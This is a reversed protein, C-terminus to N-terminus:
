VEIIKEDEISITVEHYDSMKNSSGSTRKLMLIVKKNEKQQKAIYKYVDKFSGMPKNDIKVLLDWEKVSEEEATSGSDVFHVLWASSVGAKKRDVYKNPSVIMGSFYLGKRKLMSKMKKFAVPIIIEKNNRIIKLKIIGERGRLYHILQFPNEFTMNKEYIVKDM